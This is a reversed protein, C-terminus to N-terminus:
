LQTNLYRYLFFQNFPKFGLKSYLAEGKPTAHLIIPNISKQTEQFLIKQVLIRAFGQRQVSKDTAILYLGTSNGSSFVLITSVGVGKYKLLYAEINPIAILSDLLIKELRAPSILQSTVVKLWQEIDASCELKVVEIYEPLDPDKIIKGNSIGMGNWASFPYFGNSRLFPDVQQINDESAIAIEPYTGSNIKESFIGTSEPKIIETDIRYIIRPWAGQINRIVSWHDKRESYIGKIQLFQDYFEYLNNGIEKEISNMFKAQTNRLFFRNILKGM